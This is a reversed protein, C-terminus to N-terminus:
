PTEGQISVKGDVRRGLWGRSRPSCVASTTMTPPPRVPQAVAKAQAAALVQLADADLGIRGDIDVPRMIALVVIWLEEFRQSQEAGAWFLQEADVKRM